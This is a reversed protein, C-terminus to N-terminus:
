KEQPPDKIEEERYRCSQQLQYKRMYNQTYLKIIHM